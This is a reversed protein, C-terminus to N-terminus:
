FFTTGALALLGITVVASLLLLVRAVLRGRDTSTTM